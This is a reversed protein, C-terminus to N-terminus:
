SPVLCALRRVMLHIMVVRIMAESTETVYEDDKSLSRDRGVWGFTREVIWRKPLLFGQTGEPRQCHGPPSEALAAVGVGVREPRRCVRSRGLDTALPLM